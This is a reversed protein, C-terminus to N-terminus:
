DINCSSTARDVPYQIVEILQCTAQKFTQVIFHEVSGRLFPSLIKFGHNLVLKTLDVSLLVIMIITILTKIRIALKIDETAKYKCQQIEFVVVANILQRM